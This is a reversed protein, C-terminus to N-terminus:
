RRRLDALEPAAIIGSESAKLMMHFWAPDEECERLAALADPNDAGYLRIMSGRVLSLENQVRDRPWVASARRRCTDDNGLGCINANSSKNGHTM